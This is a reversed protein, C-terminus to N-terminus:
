ETKRELKALLIAKCIAEPATKACVFTDLDPGQPQYYWGCHWVDETNELRFRAQPHEEILWKVLEWTTAIYQSYPLCLRRRQGMKFLLKGEEDRELGAIKEAVLGDLDYGAEMALVEEKTMNTNTNKNM